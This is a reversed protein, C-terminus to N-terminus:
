DAGCGGDDGELMNVLSFLGSDILVQLSDERDDEQNFAAGGRM